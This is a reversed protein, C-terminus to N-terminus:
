QDDEGIERATATTVTNAIEEIRIRAMSVEGDSFRVLDRLARLVTEFEDRTLHAGAEPLWSLDDEAGAM